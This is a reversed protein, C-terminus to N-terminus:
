TCAIHLEISHMPIFVYIYLLSQLDMVAPCPKGTSAIAYIDSDTSSTSASFFFLLMFDYRPKNM